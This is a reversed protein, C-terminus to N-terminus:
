DKDQKERGEWVKKRIANTCKSDCIFSHWQKGKTNNWTAYVDSFHWWTWTGSTVYDVIRHTWLLLTQLAKDGVCLEPGFGSVSSIHYSFCAADQHKHAIKTDLGTWVVALGLCNYRLSSSERKVWVGCGVNRQMINARWMVEGKKKEACARRKKEHM